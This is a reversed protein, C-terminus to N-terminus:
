TAASSASSSTRTAGGNAVQPERLWGRVMPLDDTTMPRFHYHETMKRERAGRLPSLTGQAFRLAPSPGLEAVDFQGEGPECRAISAVREGCARPSPLLVAIM